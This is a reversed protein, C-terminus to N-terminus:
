KLRILYFFAVFILGLEGPWYVRIIRMVMQAELQGVIDLVVGVV